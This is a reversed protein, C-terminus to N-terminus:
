FTLFLGTKKFLSNILGTDSFIFLLAFLDVNPTNPM